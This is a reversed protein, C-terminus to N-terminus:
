PLNPCTKRYPESGLYQQWEAPTLNRTLRACAMAILDEPQWRWVGMGSAGDPADSGSVVWKGDPSFAAALVLALAAGSYPM